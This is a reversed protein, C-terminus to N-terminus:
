RGPKELYMNRDAMGLYTDLPTKETPNTVVVGVSIEIGYLLLEQRVEQKFAEAKEKTAEPFFVVFEDGGFRYVYGNEPCRETLTRAIRKLLKDGYEHGKTDNIEKFRNVDFFALACAIHQKRYKIFEPEIMETYAMRNYVGTMPDRNYLDELRHNIKELQLHKFLNELARMFISQIDYFYPNDYLFRGNKLITFGVAQQRFHIPTFMYASGSAGADLHRYLEEPSSFELKEMNESAYAVVLNVDDYGKEPFMTDADAEFLRKDVVIYFGDCDLDNFYDTMERFIEQFSNCETLRSSMGELREDESEEKIRYLIQNRIYERYNVSNTNPCGCSEGFVCQTPVFQFAQVEKGDWIDTLMDFAKGAIKGRDNTVTTIQPRFYLAKDMNDFGTVLFDEPVRYGYTEAAACVGAAINDSACVIVDPLKRKEEMLRHMCRVGTDYGYDGDFVIINEQPVRYKKLCSLFTQKRCFNEFNEEPGGAFLFSRCNHVAYLHEMLEEMPTRNDIGIYYLGDIAHGISIVPTVTHKLMEILHNQQEKDIMHNCDLVIGDFEDLKPLEFINYEGQNHKPDRSWNGYGNYQYIAVDKGTEKIRNLMGDVWAYTVMRRWGDTILAIKKM